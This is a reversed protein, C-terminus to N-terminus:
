RPQLFWRGVKPRQSRGVGPGSEPRRQFIKMPHYIEASRHDLIPKRIPDASLAGVVGAVEADSVIARFRDFQEPDVELASRLLVAVDGGPFDAGLVREVSVGPADAAAVAVQILEGGM